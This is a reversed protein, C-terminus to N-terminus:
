RKVRNKFRLFNCPGGLAKWFVVPLNTGPAHSTELHYLELAFVEPNVTEIKEFTALFSLCNKERFEVSYYFTLDYM